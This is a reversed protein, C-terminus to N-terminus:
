EELPLCWFEIFAQSRERGQKRPGPMLFQMSLLGEDDIRLSTKSSSQLARMAKAIYSYTYTFSVTAPCECTELVERDNPYDMETTGFEGVARLRLRPPANRPVRNNAVAPPPPHGIITLKKTSPDLESLADRLWSSKLIIRLVTADNDFNFTMRPEPDWTTIECTATPGGSEEAVLVTLPHGAGAYSMRMGTGKGPAFWEDLRANGGEADARGKGKDKKVGGGGGGGDSDDDGNKRKKSSTGPAQAATGFVNLCDMLTGLPIEFASAMEVEEEGDDGGAHEQRHQSPQSAAHPNYTFEDFVASFVWATAVLVRSEEVTVTLGDANIQVTARNAFNVGRLLAAFYRFDSVSATLLRPQEESM